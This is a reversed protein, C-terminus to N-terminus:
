PSSRGRGDRQDDLRATLDPWQEFWRAPDSATLAWPSRLAENPLFRVFTGHGDAEVPM